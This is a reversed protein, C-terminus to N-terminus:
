PAEFRAAANLMTAAKHCTEHYEASPESRHVIGAGAQITLGNGQASLSRIGIASDFDGNFSAYAVAGAYPGRKSTEIREIHEMARVKPAGSVTGAPHLAAFADLADRDTALRGRVHSVIHQVSRFRHLQQYTAVDITGTTCVRGLDNRALDVLMAHEATEKADALLEQGAAADIADDGTLPRTGAIPFTEVVGRRVRVLMEPSAGLLQRDGFRLHYLYPVPAADRLDDYLLSLDGKFGASYARSLVIQFAEGARIQTQADRVMAEFTPQDVTPKPAEIRLTRGDAPSALMDGLMDQRDEGRSVYTATGEHHDYVIGDLFLGFLYRPWSEPAGTELSPELLRVFDYGFSGVLGGVFPSDHDDVHYFRQVRRLYELPNQERSPKPLAGTVHLGAQDYQVTGAPAFGVFSFRALRQPGERSELIFSSDTQAAIRAHAEHPPPADPLPVRLLSKSCQHESILM